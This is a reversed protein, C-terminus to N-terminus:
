HANLAAEIRDAAVSMGPIDLPDAWDRDLSPSRFARAQETDSVGRAALVRAVLSSVGLERKLRVEVDPHQELLEWRQSTVLHAMVVVGQPLQRQM